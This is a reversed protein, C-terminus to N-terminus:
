RAAAEARRGAPRDLLQPQRHHIKKVFGKAADANVEPVVLRARRPGHALNLFQRHRRLGAAGIRPSWEKSVAGGASM